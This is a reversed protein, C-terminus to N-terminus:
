IKYGNDYFHYRVQAFRREEDNVGGDYEVFDSGLKSSENKALASSYTERRSQSMKWSSLGVSIGVSSRIGEISHYRRLLTDEWPVLCENGAALQRCVLIM